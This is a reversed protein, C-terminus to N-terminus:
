SEAFTGTTLMRVASKPDRVNVTTGSGKQSRVVMVGARELERLGKSVTNRVLGLQQGIAEITLHKKTAVPEGLYFTDQSFTCRTGFGPTACLHLIALPTNRTRLLADLAHKRRYQSWLRQTFVQEFPRNELLRSVVSPPITLVMVDVSRCVPDPTAVARGFPELSHLGHAGVELAGFDEGATITALTALRGAADEFRVNVTGTLVVHLAGPEDLNCIVEEGARTASCIRLEAIHKVLVQESKNRENAPIRQLLTWSDIARQLTEDSVERFRPAMCKDAV